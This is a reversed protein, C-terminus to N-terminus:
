KKNFEKKIHNLIKAIEKSVIIFNGSPKYVDGYTLKNNNRM